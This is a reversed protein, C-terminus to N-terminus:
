LQNKVVPTAKRQCYLGFYSYKNVWSPYVCILKVESLHPSHWVRICLFIVTCYCRHMINYLLLGLALALNIKYSLDTFGSWRNLFSLSPSVLKWIGDPLLCRVITQGMICNCGGWFSHLKLSSATGSTAVEWLRTSPTPNFPLFYDKSIIITLFIIM